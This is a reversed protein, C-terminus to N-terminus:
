CLLLVGTAPEGTAATIAAAYMRVQAAYADGTRSLEPDTKFDVVTWLRADGAPEAFALDIIGEIMQV